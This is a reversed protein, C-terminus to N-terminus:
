RKVLDALRESIRAILPKPPPEAKQMLLKQVQLVSQPRAMIDLKLCEDVLSLLEDSYKGAWLKRAPVYHDEKMRSDAAQPAFAAFCAFISAGIGYVDTWPGLQDSEADRYQEPAAFGPTYMPTIKKGRSALVQRAAGFDLLVPSGDTRIYINAPKIDLHLLRRTHVERLGNLLNSFVHRILSEPLMGQNGQIYQQLTRGREYRMVMYVTENARFFNTVRVVNPHNITALAKGEEFFCKMGYRFSDLNEISSAHVRSGETRLVLGSPLYEKIAVVQGNDDVARYVISFGGRSIARDIRYNQLKYGQPLARNSVASM